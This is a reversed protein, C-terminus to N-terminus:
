REAIFSSCNNRIVISYFFGFGVWFMNEVIDDFTAFGIFFRDSFEM